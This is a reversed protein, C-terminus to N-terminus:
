PKKPKSKKSTTTKIMPKESEFSRTRPPILTNKKKRTLLLFIVFFLCIVGVIGGVLFLLTTNQQGERITSDYQTMENTEPDYLHDWIGDDNSDILYQNNHKQITTNNDTENNHFADFTGDQNTDILYGNPDINSGQSSDGESTDLITVTTNKSSVTITQFSINTIQVQEISLHLVGAHIAEFQITCLTHTTAPYSGTSWAQIEAITGNQNNIESPNFFAIWDTGPTVNTAHALEQNFRFDLSWGGIAETPNMSLTVAFEEGTNVQTASPTLIIESTQQATVFNNTICLFFNLLILAFFKATWKKVPNQKRM